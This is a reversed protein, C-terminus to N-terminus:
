HANPVEPKESAQVTYGWTWPNTLTPVKMLASIGEHPCPYYKNGIRWNPYGPERDVYEVGAAILDEQTADLLREARVDVVRFWYRAAWQPMTTSSRWGYKYSPFEGSRVDTYDRLGLTAAGSAPFYKSYGSAEHVRGHCIFGGSVWAGCVGDADYAVRGPCSKDLLPSAWKERLWLTDGPQYPASVGWDFLGSADYIGFRVPGHGEEGDKDVIVPYYDGFEVPCGEPPQRKVLQRIQTIRGEHVAAHLPQPLYLPRTRM